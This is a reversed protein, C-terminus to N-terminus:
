PAKTTANVTLLRNEVVFLSAAVAFFVLTLLIWDRDRKYSCCLQGKHSIRTFFLYGMSLLEKGKLRVTM